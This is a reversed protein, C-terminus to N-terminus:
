SWKQELRLIQRLKRFHKKRVPDADIEEVSLKNARCYINLKKADGPHEFIHPAKDPPIGELWIASEDPNIHLRYGDDSPATGPPLQRSYLRSRM